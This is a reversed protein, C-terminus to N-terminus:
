WPCDASSVSSRRSAGSSVGGAPMFKQHWCATSRRRSRAKAAKKRRRLRPCLGAVRAELGGAAEVGEGPRQLTVRAADRDGVLAANAELADAADLDFPVARDRCLRREALHAHCAPAGSRSRAVVDRDAALQGLVLRSGGYALGDANIETHAPEDREGGTLVEIPWTGTAFRARGHATRCASQRTALSSRAPTGLGCRLKGALALALGVTPAVGRVLERPRQDLAEVQDRNLREPQGVHDAGDAAGDLLGAHINRGLAREVALDGVLAPAHQQRKEGVFRLLSTPSYDPYFRRVRRPRAGDAPRRVGAAARCLAEAAGGAPVCIVRVHVGGLHDKGARERLLSRWPGSPATLRLGGRQRRHGSFGGARAPPTTVEKELYAPRGSPPPAM